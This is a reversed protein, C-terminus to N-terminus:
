LMQGHIYIGLPFRGYSIHHLFVRGIRRNNGFLHIMHADMAHLLSREDNGKSIDFPNCLVRTTPSM